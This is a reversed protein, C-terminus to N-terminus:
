NDDGNNRITWSHQMRVTSFSASKTFTQKTYETSITDIIYHIREIM